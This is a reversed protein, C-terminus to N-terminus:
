QQSYVCIFPVCLLYTVHVRVHVLRVDCEDDLGILNMEKWRESYTVSDLNEVYIAIHLLIYLFQARSGSTRFTPCM